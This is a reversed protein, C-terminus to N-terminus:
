CTQAGTSEADRAENFPEVESVLEGASSQSKNTLRPIAFAVSIGKGTLQNIESAVERIKKVLGIYKEVNEEAVGRELAAERTDLTRQGANGNTEKTKPSKVLGNDTLFRGFDENNLDPYKETFESIEREYIFIDGDSTIQKLAEPTILGAQVMKYYRTISDFRVIKPSNKAM